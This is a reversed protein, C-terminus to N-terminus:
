QRLEENFGAEFAACDRAAWKGGPACLQKGAYEYWFLAYPRILYVNKVFARARAWHYLPKLSALTMKAERRMSHFEDTLMTNTLASCVLALVSPTRMGVAALQILKLARARRPAHTSDTHALMSVIFGAHSALGSPEISDLVQRMPVLWDGYKDLKFLAAVAAHRVSTDANVLMGM